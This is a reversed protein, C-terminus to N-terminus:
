EFQGFNGALHGTASSCRGANAATASLCGLSGGRQPPQSRAPEPKILELIEWRRHGELMFPSWGVNRQPSNRQRSPLPRVVRYGGAEAVMGALCFTRGMRTWDLLIMEM